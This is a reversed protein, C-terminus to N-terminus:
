PGPRDKPERALIINQKIGVQKLLSRQRDGKSAQHMYIAPDSSIWNHAGMNAKSPLSAFSRKRNDDHTM